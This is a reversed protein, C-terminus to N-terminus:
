ENGVEAKALAAVAKTIVCDPKHNISQIFGCYVCVTDGGQWDRVAKLLEFLAEKLEPAAAILRANAEDEKGCNEIEALVCDERGDSCEITIIATAEDGVKWPGPTFKDNPM